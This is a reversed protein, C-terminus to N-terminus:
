HRERKAADIGQALSEEAGAKGLRRRWSYHFRIDTL